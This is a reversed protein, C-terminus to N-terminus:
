VSSIVARVRAIPQFSDAQTNSVFVPPYAPNDSILAAWSEGPKRPLQLRKVVIADDLRVIYIGPKSWDARGRFDVLVYAGDPITPAMSDGKVRVLGSLDPVLDHRNLWAVPFALQDAVAESTPVIGNGAAADVDYVRIAAYDQDGIRVDRPMPRNLEPLSANRTGTLIYLVDAGAEAIGRLYDSDPKRKNAEYNQQSQKSVRGREAFAVQSMGLRERESKLRDGVKELAAEVRYLM